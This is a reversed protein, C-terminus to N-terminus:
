VVNTKLLRLRQHQRNLQIRTSTPIRERALGPQYRKLTGGGTHNAQGRLWQKDAATGIASENAGVRREAPVVGANDENTFFPQDLIKSRSVAGGDVSM